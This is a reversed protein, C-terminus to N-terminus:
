GSLHVADEQAHAAPSSVTNRTMSNHMHEVNQGSFLWTLFSINDPFDPTLDGPADGFALDPDGRLDEWPEVFCLDNDFVSLVDDKDDSPTRNDCLLDDALWRFEDDGVL